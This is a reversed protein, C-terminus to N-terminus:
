IPSTPVVWIFGMKWIIVIIIVSIVLFIYKLITVYFPNINNKLLYKELWNCAINGGLLAVILHPNLYVLNYLLTKLSSIVEYQFSLEAQSVYLANELGELM